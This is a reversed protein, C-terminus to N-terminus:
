RYQNCKACRPAVSSLKEVSLKEPLLLTLTQILNRQRPLNKVSVIAIKVYVPVLVFTLKYPYVKRHYGGM